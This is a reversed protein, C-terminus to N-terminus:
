ALLKLNLDGELEMDAYSVVNQITPYALQPISTRYNNRM